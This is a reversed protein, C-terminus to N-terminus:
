LMNQLIFLIKNCNPLNGQYTSVLSYFPMFKLDDFDQGEINDSIVQAQYKFM